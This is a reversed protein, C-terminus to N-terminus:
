TEDRLGGLVAKDGLPDKVVVLHDEGSQPLVPGVGLVEFGVQAVVDGVVAGHPHLQRHLSSAPGM